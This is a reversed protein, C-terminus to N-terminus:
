TLKVSITRTSSAAGAPRLSAQVRVSLRHHKRLAALGAASAGVRISLRGARTLTRTLPRLDGGRVTLLGPAPIQLVLTVVSGRVSHGVIAFPSPESTDATAVPTSSAPTTVAPAPTGSGAAGPPPAAGGAPEAPPESTGGGGEAAKGILGFALGDTADFVGLAQGNALARSLVLRGASLDARSQGLKGALEAESIGIATAAEAVSSQAFPEGSLPSGLLEALSTPEAAAFLAEAVRNPESAEALLLSLLENISVSGLGREIAQEPPQGLVAEAAEEFEAAGAKKGAASEEYTEELQDDLYIALGDDSLLEEFEEHEGALEALAAEIAHEVSARTLGQAGGVGVFAGIGLREFLLKTLVAPELSSLAVGGSGLPAEGLLTVAESTPLATLGGAPLTIAPRPGSDASAGAAPLAAILACLVCAALAACAHRSARGGAVSM